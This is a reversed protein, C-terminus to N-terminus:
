KIIKDILLRDNYIKVAEQFREKNIMIYDPPHGDIISRYKWGNSYYKQFILYKNNIFLSIDRQKLKGSNDFTQQDGEITDGIQRKIEILNNHKDFLSDVQTIIQNKSNYRSFSKQIKGNEKWKTFWVKRIEGKSSLERIRRLGGDKGVDYQLTDLNQGIIINSLILLYLISLKKM